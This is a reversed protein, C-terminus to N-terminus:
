YHNRYTPCPYTPANWSIQIESPDIEWPPSTWEAPRPFVIGTHPEMLFHKVVMGRTSGVKTSSISPSTVTRFNAISARIWLDDPSSRPDSCLPKSWIPSWCLNHEREKLREREKETERKEREREERELEKEGVNKKEREGVSFRCSLDAWYLQLM